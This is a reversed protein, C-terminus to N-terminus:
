NGVYPGQRQFRRIKSYRRPLSYFKQQKDINNDEVQMPCMNFNLVVYVYMM